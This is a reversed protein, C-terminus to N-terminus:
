QGSGKGNGMGNGGMAYSSGVLGFMLIMALSTLIINRTKMIM